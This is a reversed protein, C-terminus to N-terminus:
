LVKTHILASIFTADGLNEVIEYSIGHSPVTTEITKVIKSKGGLDRTLQEQISNSGEDGIVIVTAQHKSYSDLEV